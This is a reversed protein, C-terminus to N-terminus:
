DSPEPITSSVTSKRLNKQRHDFHRNGSDTKPALFVIRERGLRGLFLGLEFIVNDRVALERNQRIELFDEPLM